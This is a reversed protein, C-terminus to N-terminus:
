SAGHITHKTVDHNHGFSEQGNLLDGSFQVQADLRDAAVQPGAFELAKLDVALRAPQDFAFVELLEQGVPAVGGRLLRRAAAALLAPASRALVRRRLSDM